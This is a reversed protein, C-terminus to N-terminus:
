GVSSKGGSAKGVYLHVFLGTTAGPSYYTYDSSICLPAHSVSHSALIIKNRPKHKSTYFPGDVAWFQDHVAKGTGYLLIDFSKPKFLVKIEDEWQGLITGPVVILHPLDLIVKSEGLYPNSEARLITLM